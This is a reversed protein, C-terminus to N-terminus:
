KGDYPEIDKIFQNKEEPTLTDFNEFKDRNDSIFKGMDWLDRNVYLPILPVSFSVRSVNSLLAPNTVFDVGGSGGAIKADGMGITRVDRYMLGQEAGCLLAAGFLMGVFLGSIIFNRKM